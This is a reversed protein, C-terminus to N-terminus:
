SKYNSNMQCLTRLTMSVTSLLCMWFSFGTLWTPELVPFWTFLMPMVYRRALWWFLFPGALPIWGVQATLALLPLFVLIFLLGGKAGYISFGAVMQFLWFCFSVIGVVKAIEYIDGGLTGLADAQATRWGSEEWNGERDFYNFRDM